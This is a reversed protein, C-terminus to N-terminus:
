FLREPITLTDGPMLLINDSLNGEVLISNLNISIVATENDIRRFLQTKETDAFENPGGAALVADLITMGQSHQLSTSQVVAGTIRVRSIYTTSSLETMIVAVNPTRVFKALRQTIIEAVDEPTLGAVVVDGVLPASIKGDPRVPVTVGLDANKWVNIQISDGIGIKYESVIQSPRDELDSINIVKNAYNTKSACGASVFFFMFLLITKRM